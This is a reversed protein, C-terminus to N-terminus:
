LLFTTVSLWRKAAAFRQWIQNPGSILLSWLYLLFKELIELVETIGTLDATTDRRGPIAFFILLILRNISAEDFCGANPL